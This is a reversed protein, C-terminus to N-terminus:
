MQKVESIRFSKIPLPKLFPKDLELFRQKRSQGDYDHMPRNNLFDLVEAIAQNIESLSFFTRNRLAAIIWRQAVTVASEVCEKDRSAATRTPLIVTGYHEAFRFFVLNIGPDYRNAKTVASKLNDPVICATVGGFFKFAHMHSMSFSSDNQSHSAEAYTYSGAALATVFVDVDYIEGTERDFYFLGDGSYDTYLIDGGKYVLHM